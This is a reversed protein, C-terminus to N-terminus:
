SLQCHPCESGEPLIGGEGGLTSDQVRVRVLCDGFLGIPPLKQRDPNRLRIWRYLAKM